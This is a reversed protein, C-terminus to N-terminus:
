CVCEEKWKKTCGFIRSTIKLFYMTSGEKTGFHGMKLANQSTPTALIAQLPSFLPEDQKKKHVGFPRPDNKSFFDKQGM